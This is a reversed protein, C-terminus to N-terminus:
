ESDTIQAQLWCDAGEALTPLPPAKPLLRNGAPPNSLLDYYQSFELDYTHRRPLPTCINSFSVVSSERVTVTGVTQGLANAINLSLATGGSPLTVVFEVHDAALKEIPKGGADVIEVDNDPDNDLADTETVFRYPGATEITRRATGTGSSVSVIANSVGLAGTHRAENSLSPAPRGALAELERLDVLRDADNLTVDGVVPYTIRRDALDWVFLEAQQVAADSLLKFAPALTTLLPGQGVGERFVLRDRRIAMHIQHPGFTERVFKPALVTITNTQKSGAYLFRGFFRLTVDAV